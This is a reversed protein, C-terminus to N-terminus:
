KKILVNFAYKLFEQIEVAMKCKKSVDRSKEFRSDPNAVIKMDAIVRIEFPAELLKYTVRLETTREYKTGRLLKVWFNKSDKKFVVRNEGTKMLEYGNKIMKTILINKVEKKTLKCVIVEPKGTLTNLPPAKYYPLTSCGEILIIGLLGSILIPRKM